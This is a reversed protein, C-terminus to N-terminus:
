VKFINGLQKFLEDKGSADLQLILIEEEINSKLQWENDLEFELRNVHESGNWRSGNVLRIHEGHGNSKNVVDIEISLADRMNSLKKEFAKITSELKAIAKAEKSRKFKANLVKLDSKMNKLIRSAIAGRETANTKMTKRWKIAPSM